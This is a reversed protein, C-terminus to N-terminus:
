ARICDIDDDSVRNIDQGIGEILDGAQRFILDETGTCDEIGGTETGSDSFIVRDVELINMRINVAFM